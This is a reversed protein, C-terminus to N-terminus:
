GLARAPPTLLGAEEIARQCSIQARLQRCILFTGGLKRQFFIYEPPPTKLKGQFKRLKMGMRQLRQQLDTAGFDYTEGDFAEAMELSMDLLIETAESTEESHVGLDEIVTRLLERDRTALGVFANRYILAVDPPVIRAAGFDLLVIQEASADYFYNAPNPDTQSLGFEFLERMLLRLLDLAVRNRQEQPAHKGWDLLPIGPVREMALIHRTSHEPFAQPLRFVSSKGLAEGYRQLQQLERGYDVEQRLERKVEETMSDLDVGGPVLRALRLLSRLNDVDSEISEAIGPYQIKLVLEHGEHSVAGHVQGISAAALPERDVSRFRSEYEPGYEARLVEQVQEEPMMHASSRLIELAEAFEKPLMNDGELSLMQGVKMAAGRLRSLRTALLRANDVTLLAHPLEQEARQAVRRAKEAAGSLAMQGATTSLQLFRSFRGSPVRSAARATKADPKDVTGLRATGPAWALRAPQFPNGCEGKKTESGLQGRASGELSASM